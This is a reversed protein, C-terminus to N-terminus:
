KFKTKLRNMAEQSKRKSEQEQEIKNLVIIDNIFIRIPVDIFQKHSLHFM